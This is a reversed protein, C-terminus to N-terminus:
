VSKIILVVVTAIFVQGNRAVIIRHFYANDDM